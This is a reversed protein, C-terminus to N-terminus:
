LFISIKKLFEMVKIYCTLTDSEMDEVFGEISINLILDEVNNADDEGFAIVQTGHTIVDKTLQLLAIKRKVGTQIRFQIQSSEDVTSSTLIIGDGDAKKNRKGKAKEEKEKEKEALKVLRDVKRKEKTTL